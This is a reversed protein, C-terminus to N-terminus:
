GHTVERAPIHLRPANATSHLLLAQIAEAWGEPGLQQTRYIGDRRTLAPYDHAPSRVIVAVDAAELMAIDNGGDGLAITRIIKQPNTKQYQQALWELAQGKDCHDSLHIFRGGYQVKIGQSRVQEIFETRSKDDGLWQLPEGYQRQKALQAQQLSLGTIASVQQSSLSSFGRYQGEFASALQTLRNLIHQKYAAFEKIWFLGLSQTDAPQEPFSSKPIYVAAGNEVIFPGDLNLQQQILQIEARTKSTNLVIPIHTQQLQSICPLAPAATYTHHDLLTGDLDSFLIVQESKM